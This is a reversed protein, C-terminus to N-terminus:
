RRCRWRAAAGSPVLPRARPQPRTATQPAARGEELTGTPHTRFELGVAPAQPCGPVGSVCKWSSGQQTKCPVASSSAWFTHLASGWRCSGGQVMWEGLPCPHRDTHITSIAESALETRRAWMIMTPTRAIPPVPASGLKMCPMGWLVDVALFHHGRRRAGVGRAAGM